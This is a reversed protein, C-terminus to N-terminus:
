RNGITCVTAFTPCHPPGRQSIVKYQPSRPPPFLENLMTVASKPIAVNPNIAVSQVRLPKLQM